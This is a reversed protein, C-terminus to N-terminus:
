EVGIWDIDIQFDGTKKDGLLIGISEVQTPDLNMGKVAQGFSKAVFRDLPIRVDVWEGAKTAFDAQYSFATRRGPVYLNLTYQRGDGRIRMVITQGAVLELKSARSRMSAFGGNNELSLTGSFQMQGESAVATRSSSRGGMVGDNVIQWQSTAAPADFDFILRVPEEAPALTAICNVALISVVFAFSHNM